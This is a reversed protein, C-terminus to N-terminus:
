LEVPSVEFTKINEKQMQIESEKEMSSFFDCISKDGKLYIKALMIDRKSPISYKYVSASYLLAAFLVWPINFLSVFLIANILIPSVCSIWYRKKTTIFLCHGYFEGNLNRKISLIPLKGFLLFIFFCHVLEHVILMPMRYFERIDKAVKLM